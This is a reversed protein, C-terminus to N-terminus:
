SLQCVDWGGGWVRHSLAKGLTMDMELGRRERQPQREKIVESSPSSVEETVRM